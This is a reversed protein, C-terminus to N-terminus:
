PSDLTSSTHTTTSSFCDVLSRPADVFPFPAVVPDLCIMNMLTLTLSPFSISHSRCALSSSTFLGASTTQYQTPLDPDTHVCSSAACVFVSNCKQSFQGPGIRGRSSRTHGSKTGRWASFMMILSQSLCAPMPLLVDNLLLLIIVMMMKMKVAPRERKGRPHFFFAPPISPCSLSCGAGMRRSPM